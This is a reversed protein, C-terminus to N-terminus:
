TNLIARAAASDQVGNKRKQTGPAEGLHELDGRAAASDQVPARLTLPPGRPSGQADRPPEKLTGPRDWPANQAVEPSELPCPRM